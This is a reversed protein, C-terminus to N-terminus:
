PDYSTKCVRVITYLFVCHNMIIVNNDNVIGPRPIAM